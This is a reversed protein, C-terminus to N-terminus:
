FGVIVSARATTRGFTVFGDTHLGAGASQDAEASFAYRGIDPVSVSGYSDHLVEARISINNTAKAQIGAGITVGILRDSAADPFVYSLDNAWTVSGASSEVSVSTANVDAAALGLSGFVLLRPDPTYGILGRIHGLTDITGNVEARACTATGEYCTPSLSLTTGQGLVVTGGFDIDVEFGAVGRGGAAQHMVGAMLFPAVNGYRPAGERVGNVSTYSGGGPKAWSQNASVGAGAYFQSWNWSSLDDEALGPTVMLMAAGLIACNLLRM